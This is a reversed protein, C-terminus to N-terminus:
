LFVLVLSIVFISKLCKKSALYVLNETAFLTTGITKKKNQVNFFNGEFHIIKRKVKTFKLM